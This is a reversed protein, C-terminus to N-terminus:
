KTSQNLLQQIADYMEKLKMEMYAEPATKAQGGEMGIYIEAIERLGQNVEEIAQQRIREHDEPKCEAFAMDAECACCWGDHTPHAMEEKTEEIAQQRVSRLINELKDIFENDYKESESKRDVFDKLSGDGRRWWEMVSVIQKLHEGFEERPPTLSLKIEKGLESIRSPQECEPEPWDHQPLGKKGEQGKATKRLRKPILKRIEARDSQGKPTSKTM